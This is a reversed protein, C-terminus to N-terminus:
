EEGGADETITDGAKEQSINQGTFTFITSIKNFPTPQTIEDALLLNFFHFVNYFLDILDQTKSPKKFKQLHLGITRCLKFFFNYILKILPLICVCSVIM